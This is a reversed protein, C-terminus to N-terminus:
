STPNMCLVGERACFWSRVNAKFRHIYRSICSKTEEVDTLQAACWFAGQQEISCVQGPPPTVTYFSCYKLMSLSFPEAMDKLIKRLSSVSMDPVNYADQFSYLERKQPSVTSNTSSPHIEGEATSIVSALEQLVRNHRWTYRGQSLAVKCESLVLETTQRGQCLPCTPDDKKGWRELNANSSLLDYVSRILFSIRLPAM